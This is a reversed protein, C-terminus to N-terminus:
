KKGGKKIHVLILILVILSLSSAGILLVSFYQHAPGQRSGSVVTLAAGAICTLTESNCYEGGSCGINPVRCSDTGNAIIVCHGNICEEKFWKTTEGVYTKTGSGACQTTSFCQQALAYDICILSILFLFLIVKNLRVKEKIEM